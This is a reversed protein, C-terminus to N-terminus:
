ARVSQEKDPVSQEDGPVSQEDGPVKEIGLVHRYRPTTARLQEHTGQAVVQGNDILVVRDAVAITAPRHSIILTTKGRRAKALAKVVQLERPSDVASTADDLVLVRPDALLARALALRQRQGGSLALGREGVPTRYGHPLEDIFEDAQALHAAEALEEDTADPRGVRLNAEITDNFLFSDEFVVAVARRVTALGLSAVDVGDVYVVGETPDYLRALLSLVTTKGSGTPGVMAVVEGGDISLEFGDLVPGGDVVGPYSFEVGNLRVAGPGPPLPQAIAPEPVSTRRDMISSLRYCSVVARQLMVIYAGISQLPGTLIALYANFAVLMGVSLEHHLVLYGGLWNVAALELMPVTNLTPLYHARTRVVRMADGLVADASAGLRAEMVPETGFGKVARIGSITEEVVGALAGRERQLDSIAERVRKSFRNSAFAVLPLAAVAVAGLLPSTLLLIVAVAAALTANGVWFPASAVVAQVQFLDSTVRSLLQGRNVNSHYTVDLYLLHDHFDRRLQSEVRRSAVGNYYRRGRSAAAQALGLAAIVVVYVTFNGWRHALLGENVANGLLLPTSAIAASSVLAAGVALGLVAWHPSMAKRMFAWGQRARRRSEAPSATATASKISARKM